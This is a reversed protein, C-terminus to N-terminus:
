PQQYLSFLIFLGRLNINVHLWVQYTSLTQPSREHSQLTPAGLTLTMTVVLLFGTSVLYRQFRNVYQSWVQYASLTHLGKMPNRKPGM